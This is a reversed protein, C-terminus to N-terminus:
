KIFFYEDLCDCIVLECFLYYETFYTMIFKSLYNVYLCFKM